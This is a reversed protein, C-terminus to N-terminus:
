AQIEKTKERFSILFRETLDIYMDREVKSWSAFVANEIELIKMASNQALITGKETLCVKKKRLGAMELYIIEDRELKRLSSNITQKSIGSLRVIDSLLQEGGGLSLTYLIRMASDSVGFKLAAEHYAAEIESTLYSFRKEDANNTRQM